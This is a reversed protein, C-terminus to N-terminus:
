RPSIHLRGAPTRHTWRAAHPRRAAPGSSV